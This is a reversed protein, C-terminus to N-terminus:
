KAEEAPLAGARRARAVRKEAAGVDGLDGAGRDEDAVAGLNGLEIWPRPLLAPYRGAKTEVELLELEGCFANVAALQVKEGLREAHTTAPVCRVFKSLGTGRYIVGPPWPGSIPAHKTPEDVEEDTLDGLDPEHSIAGFRAAADELKGIVGSGKPLFKRLFALEDARPLWAPRETTEREGHAGLTYTPVTVQRKRKPVRRIVNSETNMTDDHISGDELADCVWSELRLRAAVEPEFGALIESLPAGLDAEGDNPPQWSRLRRAATMVHARYATEDARAKSAAAVDETNLLKALNM